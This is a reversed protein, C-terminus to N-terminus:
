AAAFQRPFLLSVFVFLLECSQENTVGLWYPFVTSTGRGYYKKTNWTHISLMKTWDFDFTLLHGKRVHKPKIKIRLNTTYCTKYKGNTHM